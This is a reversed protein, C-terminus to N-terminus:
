TRQANSKFLQFFLEGLWWVGFVPVQWLYRSWLRTPEKVLRFLWELGSRRVWAPAQSKSGAMLDFAMGVPIILRTKLSPKFESTWVLQKWSGLGVWIVDPKSDNIFKITSLKETQTLNRFPPALSGAIQLNPWSTKLALQLKALSKSTGGYFFHSVPLDETKTILATMIDPGYMREAKFGLIRALWVLPMGDMTLLDFSKIAIAVKPKLINAMIDQMSVVMISFPPVVPQSKALRSPKPTSIKVLFNILDDFRGVGLKLSFMELFQFQSVM